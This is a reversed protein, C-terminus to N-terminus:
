LESAERSMLDALTERRVLTRTAGDELGIVPLRPVLNYNSSMSYHYAGTAPIVLLDGQHIDDPLLADAILVDGSECHQGAVTMHEDRASSLRGLLRATYKAAYLCPRPNDAM